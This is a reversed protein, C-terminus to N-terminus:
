LNAALAATDLRTRERYTRRRKVVGLDRNAPDAPDAARGAAAAAAVHSPGRDLPERARADLPQDRDEAVADTPDVPVGSRLWTAWVPM